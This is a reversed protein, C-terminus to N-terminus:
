LSLIRNLVGFLVTEQRYFSWGGQSFHIEEQLEGKIFQIWPNFSKLANKSLWSQEPHIFSIMRQPTNTKKSNLEEFKSDVVPFPFKNRIRYIILAIKSFWRPSGPLFSILPRIDKWNFTPRILIWSIQEEYERMNSIFLPIAYDFAIVAKPRIENFFVKLKESLGENKSWKALQNPFLVVVDYGLVALASAVHNGHKIWAFLSPIYIIKQHNISEPIMEPHLPDLPYVKRYIPIHDELFDLIDEQVHSVHVPGWRSLRRITRMLLIVLLLIGIIIPLVTIWDIIFWQVLLM